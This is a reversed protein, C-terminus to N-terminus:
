RIRGEVAALGFCSQILLQTEREVEPSVGFKPFLDAVYSSCFFCDELCIPSDGVSRSLKKAQDILLRAPSLFKEARLERVHQSRAVFGHDQGAAMMPAMQYVPSVLSQFAVTVFDREGRRIAMEKKLYYRLLNLDYTLRCGLEPQLRVCAKFDYMRSKVLEESLFFEVLQMYGQHAEVLSEPVFLLAAPEPPLNHYDRVYAPGVVALQATLGYTELLSAQIKRPYVEETLRQVYTDPTEGPVPIIEREWAEM